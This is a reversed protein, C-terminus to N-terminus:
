ALTKEMRVADLLVNNAGSPHKIREEARYGMAEYFPVAYLTAYLHLRGDAPLDAAQEAAALLASGVGRRVAEPLVYVAKIEDGLVASMGVIAGGSSAVFVTEGRETMARRFREPNGDKLWAEVEKASYSSGALSRVSAMHVKNIDAADDPTARRIEFTRDPM